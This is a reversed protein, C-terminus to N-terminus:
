TDGSPPSLAAELAKRIIERNHAVSDPDDFYWLGPPTMIADLARSVMEDTVLSM